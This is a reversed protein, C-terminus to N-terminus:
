DAAPGLLFSFPVPGPGVSVGGPLEQGRRFVGGSYLGFHTAVVGDDLDFDVVSSWCGGDIAAHEDTPGETGAASFTVPQEEGGAAVNSGDIGPDATFLAVGDYLPAQADALANLDAVTQM